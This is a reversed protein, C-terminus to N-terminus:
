KRRKIMLYLAGVGGDKPQAQSISLVRGRNAPANLWRPVMRRLVGGEQSVRGKGTIVLVCRLGRDQAAALFDDLRAHAEAQTLGHLDLRAEIDLQGRKLRQATRKDIGVGQGIVLPPLDPLRKASPVTSPAAAPARKARSPPQSSPQSTEPQRTPAKGPKQKLPAVDQTVSRWLPDDHEDPGTM